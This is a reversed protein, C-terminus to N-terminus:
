DLRDEDLLWQRVEEVQMRLQRNEEELKAIQLANQLAQRDEKGFPQEWHRRGKEKLDNIMSWCPALGCVLGNRLCNVSRLPLATLGILALSLMLYNRYTRRRM